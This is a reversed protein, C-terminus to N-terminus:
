NILEINQFDTTRTIKPIDIPEITRLLGILNRAIIYHERETFHTNDLNLDSYSLSKNFENLQGCLFVDLVNLGMHAGIDKVMDGIHKQKDVHNDAGTHPPTLLIIQIDKQKQAVKVGTYDVDPYYAPCGFKYYIKSLMLNYAGVFTHEDHNNIDFKEISDQDNTGGFIILYDTDDPIQNIRYDMCMAAKTIDSPATNQKHTYEADCQIKTGGIGCNYMAKFGLTMATAVAYASGSSKATLSDGLFTITKDRYYNSTAQPLLRLEKELGAVVGKIVYGDRVDYSDDYKKRYVKLKKVVITKGPQNTFIRIYLNKGWNTGFNKYGNPNDFAAMGEKKDNLIRVQDQGTADWELRYLNNYGGTLYVPFDVYLPKGDKAVISFSGDPEFAYSAINEPNSLEMIDASSVLLSSDYWHSGNIKKLLIKETIDDNEVQYKAKEKNITGQSFTKKGKRIICQVSATVYGQVIFVIYGGSFTINKYESSKEFTYIPAKNSDFLKIGSANKTEFAFSYGTDSEFAIPVFIENISGEPNIITINKNYEIQIKCIDGQRTEITVNNLGDIFLNPNSISVFDVMESNISDNGVGNDYINVLEEKLSGTEEKLSGIDTKNQEIQQVQEATAGPKVPNKEFYETVLRQIVAEAEEKTFYLSMDIPAGM